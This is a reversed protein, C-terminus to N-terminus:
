GTKRRFERQAHDQRQAHDVPSSDRLHAEGEARQNNKKRDLAERFKRKVDESAGEPTPKESSM